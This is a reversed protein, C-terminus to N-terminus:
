ASQALSAVGRHTLDNSRHYPAPTSDESESQGDLLDRLARDLGDYQDRGIRTAVGLVM